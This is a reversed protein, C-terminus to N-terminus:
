AMVGSAEEPPDAQPKLLWHWHSAQPGDDVMRTKGCSTCKEGHQSPIGYGAVGYGTPEWNHRRPEAGKAHTGCEGAHPEVKLTEGDFSWDSGAPPWTRTGCGLCYSVGDPAIRVSHSRGRCNSCDVPFGPFLAFGNGKAVTQGDVQAFEWKAPLLLRGVLLGIVLGIVVCAAAIM